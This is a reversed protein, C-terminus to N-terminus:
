AAIKKVDYWNVGIAIDVPIGGFGFKPETMIRRILNVSEDLYNKDAEIILADHIEFWIYADYERLLPHLQILSNFLYDHALSQPGINVSQNVTKFNPLWYRRKRETPTINEGTQFAEKIQEKQWRQIKPYKSYWKNIFKQAQPVTWSFGELGPPPKRGQFMNKAYGKATRNFLTGFNFMKGLERYASWHPHSEDIGWVEKATAAHADGSALAELMNEDGSLYAVSWLEAQKLDAEILIKGEEAVFMRRLEAMEPDVGHKPITQIPPKKYSLRGSRTGHLVPMPHLRGDYKIDDEVGVVYTNLMHDVQRWDLLTQCWEVDREAYYAMVEKRTSRGFVPHPYLKLTNFLYDAVQKPSNMNIGGCEEQLKEYLELWQEAWKAGFKKLINYDISVGHAQIESLVNAGPILINQYMRRVNDAEQREKFLKYLEYTYYSDKVNYPHLEIDTAKLVKIDYDPAGLFENALDKLGHIGVPHDNEEADGGREDLSYSMLLTDESLKLEEGLLRRFQAVDFLGGHAIWEVQERSGWGKRIGAIFKGPIEWCGRENTVSFCLIKSDDTGVLNEDPYMFELSDYSTEIDIATPGVLSWLVGHAEEVSEVVRYVPDAMQAAHRADWRAVLPIKGIDRAFDAVDLKYAGDHLYAAPHITPLWWRNDRYYLHGRRYKGLFHKSVISGLLVILKPNAAEIEANLRPACLAIEEESPEDNWLCHINTLFCKERSWGVAKLTGDLLKGAPGTFPKRSHKFEDRGPAIGICLVESPTNGIGVVGEAYCDHTIGTIPESSIDSINANAM